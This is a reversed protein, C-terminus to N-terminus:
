SNHKILVNITKDITQILARIYRDWLEAACSCTFSNENQLYEMVMCFVTLFLRCHKNCLVQAFSFFFLYSCALAYFVKNGAEEVLGYYPM